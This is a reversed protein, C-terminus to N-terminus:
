LERRVVDRTHVHRQFTIGICKTNNALLASAKVDCLVFGIPHTATKPSTLGDVFDATSTNNHTKAPTETKLMAQTLTDVAFNIPPPLNTSPQKFDCILALMQSNSALVMPAILSVISTIMGCSTANISLGKKVYL